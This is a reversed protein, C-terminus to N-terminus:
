RTGEMLQRNIENHEWELCAARSRHTYAPATDPKSAWLRVEWQQASDNFEITSARSVTLAGFQALPLDDTWLTELSGDTDVTFVFSRASM